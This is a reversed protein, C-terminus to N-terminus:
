LTHAIGVFKGGSAFFLHSSTSAVLSGRWFSL